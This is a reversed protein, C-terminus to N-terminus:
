GWGLLRAATSVLFCAAFGIATPLLVGVATWKWSGTERRITLCTTSCPWHLLCFLVTCAATVGTWGNEVLLTKLASLEGVEVLTGRSLYAMLLIPVVIENAPWGLVFAMLIAGDLGFIRAFPDLVGVTWALLSQGSVTVNACLWILLGAPAAVAAARGLVFLTRDLVSRTLVQGVRPIRYPPLELTFSSPVGRLVTASLLRATLFTCVVGLMIVGTLLVPAAWGGEGAAFFLTLVAILTPFRGNCPVFSNTLIAILRERPSDIIRCGTVGCANCGFGMCMTLAQKGCARAKQFPHDLLFAVRPLYGLDELLTFLPFFIAMPPLMVAVVWSLVKYVGDVLAGTLWAPASLATLLARLEGEGWGFLRSLLGSPVNAGQITLWLLVMLGLILLPFGTWKGLVLRDLRRDRDAYDAREYTTVQRALTEGRRVTEEVPLERYLSNVQGRKAVQAVAERLNELGEERGAATPIVPIGLEKSLREVDVRIGKKRAEDMLNVCLVTNPQLRIAQLVLNLNRELCTADCVVVAAQAEGSLLFDRTVEEEASHPQLSYTGPLDVLEWREGGYDYRGRAVEVTKGPWNGTHQRLGTLANFVTSKGVNPNGVLAIVKEM